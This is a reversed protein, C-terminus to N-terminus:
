YRPVFREPREAHRCQSEWCRLLWHGLRRALPQRRPQPHWAAPPFFATPIKQLMTFEPHTAISDM